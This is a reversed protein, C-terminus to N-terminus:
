LSITRCSPDDVRAGTTQPHSAKLCASVGCGMEVPCTDTDSICYNKGDTANKAKTGCTFYVSGVPCSGKFEGSTVTEPIAAVRGMCFARKMAAANAVDLCEFGSDSTPLLIKKTGCRASLKASTSVKPDTTGLFDDVPSATANSGGRNQTRVDRKQNQEEVIAVQAAKQSDFLSDPKKELSQNRDKTAPVSKRPGEEQRPKLLNTLAKARVVGIANALGPSVTEDKADMKKPVVMEVASKEVADITEEVNMAEEDSATDFLDVDPTAPREEASTVRKETAEFRAELRQNQAKLDRLLKTVDVDLKSSATQPAAVEEAAARLASAVVKEELSLSNEVKVSTGARSSTYAAICKSSGDVPCYGTKGLAVLATRTDKDNPLCVCRDEMVLRSRNGCKTACEVKDVVADGLLNFIARSSSTPKFSVIPKQTFAPKLECTGDDTCDYKSDDILTLTDPAVHRTCHLLDRTSAVACCKDTITGDATTRCYHEPM